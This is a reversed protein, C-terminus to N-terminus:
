EGDKVQVNLRMGDIATVSQNLDISRNGCAVIVQDINFQYKHLSPRLVEMIKKTYKSKISITKRNPLDVKFIVRQEVMVECGALKTSTESIDLPQLFYWYM